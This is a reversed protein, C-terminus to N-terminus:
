RSIDLLTKRAMRKKAGGANAADLDEAPRKHPHLLAQFINRSNVLIEKKRELENRRNTVSIPEAAIATIQEDSLNDVAKPSFTDEALNRILHRNIVQETVNMIFATRKSEYLALLHDLANEATSRVNNNLGLRVSLAAVHMNRDSYSSTETAALEKDLKYNALKTVNALYSPDCMTNSTNKDDVLAHLQKQALRFRHELDDDIFDLIKKVLDPPATAYIVEKILITCAGEVRLIHEEALREWPKSQEHFADWVLLVSPTGPLESGRTRKHLKAIWNIAEKRDIDSKRKEIGDAKSWDHKSLTDTGSAVGDSLHRPEIESASAVNLYFFENYFNGALKGGLEQLKDMTKRLLKTIEDRLEPLDRKHQEVRLRSVRNRLAAIGKRNSPIGEWRGSSTFVQEQYCRLEFDEKSSAVPQNMVVYWGLQLLIGKNAFLDLYSQEQKSGSTLRDPKTIIGLTRAGTPDHALIIARNNALVEAHLDRVFKLDDKTYVDTTTRILGPLDLLSFHGRTPGTIEVCLRHVSFANHGDGLKKLGMWSTAKDILQQFDKFDTLEKDFKVLKKREAPTSKPGPM